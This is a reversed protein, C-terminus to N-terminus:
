YNEQRVCNLLAIRIRYLRNYLTNVSQEVRESMGKISAGVEYRLSLLQRDKESLKKMCKRLRDLRSDEDQQTRVKVIEEIANITKDSFAKKDKQKQKIYDFIRFKAITFAWAAFDTGPEFDDFQRWMYSVTEQVIDEVSNEDPVLATIYAYLRRQVATYLRMFRDGRENESHIDQSRSETM